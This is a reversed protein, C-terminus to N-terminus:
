KIYVLVKEKIDVAICVGDKDRKEASEVSLIVPKTQLGHDEGELQPRMIRTQFFAAVSKAEITASTIILHLESREHSEDVMIVSYKSLLPDDMMERLLIANTMFKIRTLDQCRFCDLACLGRGM